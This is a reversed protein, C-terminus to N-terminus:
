SMVKRALRWYGTPMLWELVRAIKADTGVLVRPKRRAVAELTVRAAEEPPLRLLQSARRKQADVVAAPLSPALRAGSAIRTAVGGPCVATVGVNTGELEHRLADSFGRLAFKSAAYHSQGAPAIIGFISATNVIHADPRALLLPLFARTMRVASHFNIEFLWDYDTEPTELFTGLIAVGANNFLLDVAPHRELVQAPFAAVHERSTVDFRHTSVRVPSGEISAATAALGDANIDALALHCGRAALAIALARGIGSGAGTIVATKDRYDLPGRKM